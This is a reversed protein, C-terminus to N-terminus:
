TLSYSYDLEYLILDVIYEILSNYLTIFVTLDIKFIQLKFMLFCSVLFLEIMIMKRLMKMFRKSFFYFLSDNTFKGLIMCFRSGVFVFCFGDWIFDQKFLPVCDEFIPHITLPRRITSNFREVIDNWVSIHIDM